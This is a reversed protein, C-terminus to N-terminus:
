VYVDVLIVGGAAVYGTRESHATGTQVLLKATSFVSTTNSVEIVVGKSLVGESIVWESIVWESTVREPTAQLGRAIPVIVCHFTHPISIQVCASLGSAGIGILECLPPEGTSILEIADRPFSDGAPEAGCKWGGVRM